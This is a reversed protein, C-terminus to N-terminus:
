EPLTEKENNSKQPCFIYSYVASQQVIQVKEYCHCSITFDTKIIVTNIQHYDMYNTLHYAIKETGLTPDM